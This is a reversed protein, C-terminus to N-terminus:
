PANPGELAVNGRLVVFTRKEGLVLFRYLILHNADRSRQLVLELKDLVGNYRLEESKRLPSIERLAVKLRADEVVM